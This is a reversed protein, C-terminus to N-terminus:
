RRMRSRFLGEKTIRRAHGYLSRLATAMTPYSRCPYESCSWGIGGARLMVMPSYRRHVYHKQEYRLVLFGPVPASQWWELAKIHMRNSGSRPQEFPFHSIVYPIPLGKRRYKRLIRRTTPNTKM